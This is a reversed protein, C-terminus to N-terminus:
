GGGGGGVCVNGNCMGVLQCVKRIDRVDGMPSDCQRDVTM